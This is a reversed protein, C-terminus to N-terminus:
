SEKSAQLWPKVPLGFWALAREEDGPEFIPQSRHCSGCLPALNAEVDLGDFCRDIIHARELYSSAAMWTSAPPGYGCVVCYPDQGLGHHAAIRRMSPMRRPGRRPLGGALLRDREREQAAFQANLDKLGQIVEANSKWFEVPGSMCRNIWETDRQQRAALWEEVRRLATPAFVDGQATLATM